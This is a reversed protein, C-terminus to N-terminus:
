GGDADVDVALLDAQVDPRGRGGVFRLVRAPLLAVRAGADRQPEGLGQLRLDVGGGLLLADRDVGPQDAGGGVGQLGVGEGVEDAGEARGPERGVPASPLPAVVLADGAPDVASLSPVSRMGLWLKGISPGMVRWTRIPWPETFTAVASSRVSAFTTRSAPLFASSSSSCVVTSIFPRVSVIVEGRWPPIKSRGTKPRLLPRLRSTWTTTGVPVGTFILVNVADMVIPPGTPSASM